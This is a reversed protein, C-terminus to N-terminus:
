DPASVKDCCPRTKYLHGLAKEVSGFCARAWSVKTRRVCISLERCARVCQYYDGCINRERRCSYMLQKSKYVVNWAKRKLQHDSCKYYELKMAYYYSAKCVWYAAMRIEYPSAGCEYEGAVAKKSSLSFTAAAVVLGALLWQASRYKRM